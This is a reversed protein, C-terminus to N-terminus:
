QYKEIKVISGSFEPISSIDGSRLVAIPMSGSDIIFEIINENGPVYCGNVTHRDSKEEAKVATFQQGSDLTIRYVTGIEGYYSGLAVCLYGNYYLLGNKVASEQVIEYQKSNSDTITRFDM